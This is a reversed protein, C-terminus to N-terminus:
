SELGYYLKEVKKEFGELDQTFQVFFIDQYQEPMSVKNFTDKLTDFFYKMVREFGEGRFDIKGESRQKSAEKKSVAEVLEKLSRVRKFSIESIEKADADKNFKNKRLAKLYCLEEGIESMIKNLVSSTPEENRLAELLKDNATPNEILSHLDGTPEIAGSLVDFPDNMVPDNNKGKTTSSKKGKATKKKGKELPNDDEVKKLEEPIEPDPADGDLELDGLLSDTASDPNMPVDESIDEDTLIDEINVDTTNVAM